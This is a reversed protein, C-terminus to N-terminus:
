QGFVPARPASPRRQDSPAQPQERRHAALVGFCCACVLAALRAFSDAGVPMANIRWLVAAAVISGVGALATRRADLRVSALLPAGIVLGVLVIRPHGDRDLALWLAQSSFTRRGRVAATMVFSAM